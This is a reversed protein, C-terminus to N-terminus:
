PRTGVVVRGFGNEANKSDPIFAGSVFGGIGGLIGGIVGGVPGGIVGGYAGGTLGATGGLVLANKLGGGVAAELAVDNLVTTEIKTTM